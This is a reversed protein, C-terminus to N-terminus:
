DTPHATIQFWIKRVRFVMSKAASCHKEVNDWNKSVTLAAFFMPQEAFSQHNQM